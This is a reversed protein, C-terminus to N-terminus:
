HRTYHSSGEEFGEEFAHVSMLAEEYACNLRKTETEALQKFISSMGYVRDPHSQKIQEKYAQKIEEATASPSVGLVIHWHDDPSMNFPDPREASDRHGKYEAGEDSDKHRTQEAAAHEANQAGARHEAASPQGHMLRNPDIAAFETLDCIEREYVSHLWSRHSFYFAPAGVLVFMASGCNACLLQTYVPRWLLLGEPPGSWLEELWGIESYYFGAILIAMVTAYTVLSCGLAFRASIVRVWIRFRELPVRRLHRVARRLYRGYAQLDLREAGYQRNVAARLRYRSWLSEAADLGRQDIEKLSDLVRGYILIARDLELAELKSLSFGSRLRRAVITQRVFGIALAPLVASLAFLVANFAIFYTTSVGTGLM